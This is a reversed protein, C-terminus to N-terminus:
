RLGQYLTWVYEHQDWMTLGIDKMRQSIDEPGQDLVQGFLRADMRGRDAEFDTEKGLLSMQNALLLTELVNRGLHTAGNQFM